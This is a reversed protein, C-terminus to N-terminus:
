ALVAFLLDSLLVLFTDCVVFILLVAREEGIWCRWGECGSGFDLDVFMM